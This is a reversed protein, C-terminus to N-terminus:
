ATFQTKLVMIEKLLEAREQECQLRGAEISLVRSRLDVVDQRLAKNQQALLEVTDKAASREEIQSARRQTFVFTALSVVLAAVPALALGLSEM